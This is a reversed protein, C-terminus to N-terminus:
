GDMIKPYRIKVWVWTVLNVEMINQAMFVGYLANRFPVEGPLSSGTCFRRSVIAKGAPKERDDYIGGPSSVYCNSIAM